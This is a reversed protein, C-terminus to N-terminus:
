DQADRFGFYINTPSTRCVDPGSQGCPALDGAPQLLAEVHPHGRVAHYGDLQLSLPTHTDMHTNRVRASAPLFVGLHRARFANRRDHFLPYM